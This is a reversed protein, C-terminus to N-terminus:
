WIIGVRVSCEYCLVKLCCQRGCSNGCLIPPREEPKYPLFKKWKKSGSTLARWMFLRPISSEVYRVGCGKLKLAEAVEENHAVCGVGVDRVTNSHV